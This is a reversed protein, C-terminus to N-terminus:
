TRRKGTLMKRKPGLQYVTGGVGKDGPRPGQRGKRNQPLRKWGSQAVEAMMGNWDGKALGALHTPAWGSEM